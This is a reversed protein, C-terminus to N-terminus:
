IVNCLFLCTVAKMENISMIFEQMDHSMIMFEINLFHAGPTNRKKLVAIRNEDPFSQTSM